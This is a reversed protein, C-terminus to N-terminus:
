FLTAIPKGSLQREHGGADAAYWEGLVGRGHAGDACALPSAEHVLVLADLEKTRM